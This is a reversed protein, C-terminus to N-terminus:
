ARELQFGKERFLRLCADAAGADYLTGKNNEIEELAANLGIAPRYPRHSAMAEVVDAVALIRAEILIEEGKLNRPYGSGDMREHHQYVIQALPWPSEVDKLMEYGKQSHEKILLFEINTLKTPKSLIEAPISIKGIDHIPGAMRIAEIEKQPLGMETAIARALDTSRLQHGATYPDRAEIASVMVQITTGFAKRLSDLTRQLEEEARKRATIDRSVAQFGTLHGDEVILQTNQGLWVEHGEKTLIPYESYTNQIGKVFQRGFSKIAEDRMDPRILTPYHKGILEKEEYGTIRIGAPNVFTFYGSNDTRFVIDSANEVLTRYREKSERLAEESKKHETIDQVLSAVGTVTGIEDVLPTNYWECLIRTGDKRVNQNTSREGGSIKLLAQWVQDVHPRFEETVIISAHQGFAEEHSFGFIAQAAPNWRTVRFDLDWEIVAMPTQEFHLRLKQNADRLEDDAKRRATVDRSSMVVATVEGRDNKLLDGITELWVYHGEKHKVRYELKSPKNNVLGESFVKIIHEVDDPHVIDFASKGAREEPAYGLGKISPSVYLNVGQLDAVRIMDSMNDTILRLTEEARKRETIDHHSGYFGTLNGESDRMGRIYTVLHKISGDKHYYELELTQSRNPDGGKEKERDLEAMLSEFALTQSKLTLQQDVKQAIREEPTFGLMREISPSVYTTALNIDLTFVVDAMSEALFQYKSESDRLAEEALKRDTIDLATFTVGKARDDPDLTTSSLVINIVRGDKTKWYTEVTGTGKDAIQRYKEQGVHNFDEDTPYLMRASQGLLEERSYGTMQCLTDNVEQFIRNIVMGIGVPAARFISALKGEQEKIDEQAQKRESEKIKLDAIRQKLFAMEQILAQKTKSQDKM